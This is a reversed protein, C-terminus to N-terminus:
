EINPYQPHHILAVFDDNKVLFIPKLAIDIHRCNVVTTIHVHKLSESDYILYIINTTPIFFHGLQGIKSWANQCIAWKKDYRKNTKIIAKINRFCDLCNENPCLRPSRIIDIRTYFM